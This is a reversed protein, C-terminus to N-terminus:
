LKRPKKKIFAHELKEYGLKEYFGASDASAGLILFTPSTEYALEMLKKGIGRHQYDPLVLTVSVTGHFYGDTLVRVCGVLRGDDWATTNITKKLADETYQLNYTGPWVENALRIFADASLQCDNTKYQIESM